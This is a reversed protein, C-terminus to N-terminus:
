ERTFDVFSTGALKYSKEHLLKLTTRQYFSKIHDHYQDLYLSKSMTQRQQKFLSGDGSLMFRGGGEGMLEKLTAGWTVKFVDDRTLVDKAGLYTVINVRPPIFQPRDYSYHKERGLSQMIKRNEDPITMPQHAYISNPKVHNPFARLMLKYFVCGQEINM